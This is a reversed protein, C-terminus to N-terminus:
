LSPYLASEPLPSGEEEMLMRSAQNLDTDAFLDPYAMAAIKLKVITQRCPSTFMSESVLLVRGSKLANTEQLGPRTRFNEMQRSSAPGSVVKVMIDPNKRSIWGDDVRLNEELLRASVDYLGCELIMAHEPSTRFVTLHDEPMELYLNLRKCEFLTGLRDQLLVTFYTLASEAAPATDSIGMREADQSDVTQRATLDGGDRIRDAPLSDEQLTYLGAGEGETHLLRDRNDLIDAPAHEDFIRNQSAPDEQVPGDPDILSEEPTEPRAEPSPAASPASAPGDELIRTRCGGLFLSLSLLLIILFRKYM